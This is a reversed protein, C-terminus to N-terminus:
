RPNWNKLTCNFCIEYMTKIYATEQALVWITDKVVLVFLLLIRNKILKLLLLFILKCGSYCDFYLRWNFFKILYWAINHYSWTHYADTIVQMKLGKIYNTESYNIPSITSKNGLEYWNITVKAASNHIKSRHM